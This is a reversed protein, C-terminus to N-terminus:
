KEGKLLKKFLERGVAFNFGMHILKRGQRIGWRRGFKNKHIEVFTLKIM